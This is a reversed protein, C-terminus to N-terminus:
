KSCSCGLTVKTQWPSRFFM